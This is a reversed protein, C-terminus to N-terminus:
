RKEDRKVQAPRRFRESISRRVRVPEKEVDGVPRVTGTRIPKNPAESNIETMGEDTECPGVELGLDVAGSNMFNSVCQQTSSYWANFQFANRVNPRVNGPVVDGDPDILNNYIDIQGNSVGAANVVGNSFPRNPSLCTSAQMIARELDTGSANTSSITGVQQGNVLVPINPNVTEDGKGIEGTYWQDWRQGNICINGNYTDWAAEAIDETWEFTETLDDAINDGTPQVPMNNEDTVDNPVTDLCENILDESSRGNWSMNARLGSQNVEVKGVDPACSTDYDASMGIEYKFKGANALNWYRARQEDLLTFERGFIKIWAGLDFGLSFDVKAELKNAAHTWVSHQPEGPAPHEAKWAIQEVFPLGGAHVCSKTAADCKMSSGCQSNTTCSQLCAGEVCNYGGSCYPRSLNAITGQFRSAQRMKVASTAADQLVAPENCMGGPASPFGTGDMLPSCGPGDWGVIETKQIARCSYAELRGKGRECQSATANHIRTGDELTCMGRSTCSAMSGKGIARKVDESPKEGCYYYIDESSLDQGAELKTWASQLPPNEHMFNDATCRNTVTVMEDAYVPNCAQSDDGNINQMVDKMAVNMDALGGYFSPEVDVHVGLDLTLNLGFKKKQIAYGLGLILSPEVYLEQGNDATLDDAQLAHMPRTWISAIDASSGGHTLADRVDEMLLNSDHVWRLGYDVDWKLVAQVPGVPFTKLVRPAPEKLGFDYGLNLGASMVASSPLEDRMVGDDTWIQSGPTSMMANLPSQRPWVVGGNEFRIPYYDKMLGLQMYQQTGSPELNDMSLYNAGACSNAVAGPLNIPNTPCLTFGLDMGFPADCNWARLGDYQINIEPTPLLQLEKGFLELEMGGTRVQSRAKRSVNFSNYASGLSVKGDLLNVFSNDTKHGYYGVCLHLDPRMEDFAGLHYGETFRNINGSFNNWWQRFEDIESKIVNLASIATGVANNSNSSLNSWEDFVNLLTLTWKEGDAASTIGAPITFTQENALAVTNQGTLQDLNHLFEIGDPVWLFKNYTTGNIASSNNGCQSVYDCYTVETLIIGNSGTRCIATGQQGSQAQSSLQGPNEFLDTVNTLLSTINLLSEELTFNDMPNDLDPVGKTVGPITSSYSTNPGSSGMPVYYARNKVVVEAWTPLNESSAPGAKCHNVTNIMQAPVQQAQQVDGIQANPFLQAQAKLGLGGLSGLLLSVLLARM